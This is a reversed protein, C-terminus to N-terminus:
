GNTGEMRGNYNFVGFYYRGIHIEPDKEAIGQRGFARDLWEKTLNNPHGPCRGVEIYEVVRIKKASRKMMDVIKDVDAVHQLCNYCWCENFLTKPQYDEAMENVFEIGAEKYRLGVWQPFRCPDVVVAKSYNKCRLLLSCPGGGIDLVSIGQLNFWGGVEAYKMLKMLEAYKEQKVQEAYTNQCTGWWSKEWANHNKWEEVSISM